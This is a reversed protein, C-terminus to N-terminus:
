NVAVIIRKYKQQLNVLTEPMECETITKELQTLLIKRRDTPRQIRSPSVHTVYNIINLGVRALMPITKPIVKLVYRTTPDNPKMKPSIFILHGKESYLKLEDEPEALAATRLLNRVDEVTDDSFFEVAEEKGDYVLYIIVTTM